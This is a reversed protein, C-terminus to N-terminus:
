FHFELFLNCFRGARWEHHEVQSVQEGWPCIVIARDAGLQSQVGEVAEMRSHWALSLFRLPISLLIMGSTDITM